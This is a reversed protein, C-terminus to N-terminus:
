PKTTTYVNLSITINLLLQQHGIALAPLCCRKVIKALAFNIYVHEARDMGYWRLGIWDLGTWDLGTWDLGHREPDIGVLVTRCMKSWDM